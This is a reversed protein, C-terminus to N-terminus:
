SKLTGPKGYLYIIAEKYYNCLLELVSFFCVLVVWIRGPFSGGVLGMKITGPSSWVNGARDRIWLGVSSGAKGAVYM